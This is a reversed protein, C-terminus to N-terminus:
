QFHIKVFEGNSQKKKKKFNKKIDDMSVFNESSLFHIVIDDILIKFKLIKYYLIICLFNRIQGKNLEPRKDLKM